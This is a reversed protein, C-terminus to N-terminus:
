SSRIQHCLAPTFHHPLYGFVLLVGFVTKNFKNESKFIPPIPINFKQPTQNEAIKRPEGIVRDVLLTFDVGNHNYDRDLRISVIISNV